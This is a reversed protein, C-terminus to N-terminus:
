GVVLGCGVAGWWVVLFVVVCAPERVRYPFGPWAQVFGFFWGSGFVRLQKKLVWCPAWRGGGAAGVVREM